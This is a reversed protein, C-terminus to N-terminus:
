YNNSMRLEEFFLSAYYVFAGYPYICSPKVTKFKYTKRLTSPELSPGADLAWHAWM